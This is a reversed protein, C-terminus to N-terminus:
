GCHSDSPSLDHPPKESKDRFVIFWVALNYGSKALVGTPNNKLQGSQTVSTLYNASDYEYNTVIPTCGASLCATQM